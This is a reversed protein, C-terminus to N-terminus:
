NSSLWLGIVIYELTKKPVSNNEADIVTNDQLNPILYQRKWLIDGEEKVQNSTINILPDRREKEREEIVLFIM